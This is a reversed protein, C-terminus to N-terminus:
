EEELKMKITLQHTAVEQAILDELGIVQFMIEGDVSKEIAFEMKFTFEDMKFYPPTNYAKRLSSKVKRIAEVLGLSNGTSFGVPNSPKFSFSIKHFSRPQISVFDQDSDGGAIRVTLRGKETEMSYVSLAAKVNEIQFNPSESESINANQIEKKITTIVEDIELETCFGDTAFSFCTTAIM